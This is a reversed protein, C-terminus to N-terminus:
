QDAGELPPSFEFNSNSAPGIDGPTGGGGGEAKLIWNLTEFTADGAKSEPAYRRPTGHHLVTRKAVLAEQNYYTALAKLPKPEHDATNDVFLLPMSISGGTDDIQVEFRVNGSESSSTRPWFILGPLRPQKNESLTVAGNAYERAFYDSAGIRDENRWDYSPRDNPDVLDPTRRTLINIIKPPFCRGLNAQGLAPFDKKPHGVRLFLRQILYATPGGRPHRMFRRETLKVFSVRNGLPFLFGKYVIEVSIDRGLVATHRWREVNLAEFIPEGTSRRKAGAPPQFHTDLTLSGGLASLALETVNLARPSYIADGDQLGLLRYRPPPDIQDGDALLHGDKDRRGIVPLGSVSSLTVLEPRDGGAMIERFRTKAHAPGGDDQPVPADWPAWPGHPSPSTGDRLVDPQFDESWVARLSARSSDEELSAQWLPTPAGCRPPLVPTRWRADQAPSLILRFPLEIATELPTPATNASAYVEAMRQGVSVRADVSWANAPNIGQHALLAPADLIESRAWRPPLRGASNFNLLK